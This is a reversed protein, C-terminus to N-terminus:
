LMSYLLVVAFSLGTFGIGADRRFAWSRHVALQPQDSSVSNASVGASVSSTGGTVAAALSGSVASTNNTQVTLQSNDVADPKVKALGM